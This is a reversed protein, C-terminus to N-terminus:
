GWHLHDQEPSQAGCYPPYIVSFSDGLLRFLMDEGGFVSPPGELVGGCDGFRGVCELPGEM